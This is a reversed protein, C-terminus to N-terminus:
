PRGCRSPDPCEDDKDAIGDGDGDPCGALNALGAETPCEDDIDAVGDGDGDPCGRLAELGAVDPCRDDKDAIGDGDGDPCGMTSEPGPEDPCADEDDPIGDKDADPKGFGTSFTLSTFVYSDDAAPNAAASIGDILDSSTLRYDASLGLSSRESIYYKLGGGIPFVLGGSEDDADSQDQSVADNMRGAFNVDATGWIGYAVGIGVYPSLIRKFGEDGFRKGAFPELELM